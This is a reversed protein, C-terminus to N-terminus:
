LGPPPPVRSYKGKGLAGGSSWGQRSHGKPDWSPQPLKHNDKGKAHHLTWPRAVVASRPRCLACPCGDRYERSPWVHLKAVEKLRESWNLLARRAENPRFVGSNAYLTGEVQREAVKRLRKSERNCLRASVRPVPAGTSAAVRKPKLSAQSKTRESEVPNSDGSVLVYRRDRVRSPRTGPRRAHTRKKGRIRRTRPPPRETGTLGANLVRQWVGCRRALCREPLNGAERKALRRIARFKRPLRKSGGRKIADSVM